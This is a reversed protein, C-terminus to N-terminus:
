KEHAAFCMKKHTGSKDAREVTNKDSCMYVFLTVFSEDFLYIFVLYSNSIKSTFLFYEM